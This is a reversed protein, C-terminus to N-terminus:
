GNGPIVEIRGTNRGIVTNDLYRIVLVELGEATFLDFAKWRKKEKVQVKKLKKCLM